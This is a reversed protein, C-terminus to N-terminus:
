IHIEAIQNIAKGAMGANQFRIRVQKNKIQGHTAVVIGKAIADSEEFKLTFKRGVLAKHNFDDLVKAIAQNTTQLRHSRKYSLIKAKVIATKKASKKTAAPKKTTSAKKSKTAVSAKSKLTAKPKTKTKKPVTKVSSKKSTTKKTTTTKKKESM